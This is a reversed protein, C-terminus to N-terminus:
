KGGGQEAAIKEASTAAVAKFRRSMFIYYDSRHVYGSIGFSDSVAKIERIIKLCIDYSLGSAEMLDRAGIFDKTISTFVESLKEKEEISVLTPQGPAQERTGANKSGKPRGM